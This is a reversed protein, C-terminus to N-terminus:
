NWPPRRLRRIDEATVMVVATDSYEALVYRTFDMGSEGPMNVDCLILDFHLSEICQRAETTDIATTCNYGNMELLRKLLKLVQEEDDVILISEKEEM